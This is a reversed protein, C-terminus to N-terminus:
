PVGPSGSRLDPRTGTREKGTREKGRGNVPFLRPPPPASELLRLKWPRQGMTWCPLPPTADTFLLVFRSLDLVLTPQQVGTEVGETGEATTGTYDPVRPLTPNPDHTRRTRGIGGARVLDTTPGRVPCRSNPSSVSSDLTSPFVM